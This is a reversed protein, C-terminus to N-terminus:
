VGLSPANCSFNSGVARGRLSFILIASVINETALLIFLSKITWRVTTCSCYSTGVFRDDEFLVPCYEKVSQVFDPPWTCKMPITMLASLVIRPSPSHIESLHCKMVNARQCPM